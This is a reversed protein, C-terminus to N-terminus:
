RVHSFPKGNLHPSTVHIFSLANPDVVNGTDGPDAHGRGRLGEVISSPHRIRGAAADLLGSGSEAKSGIGHGACEGLLAAEGNAQEGVVGIAAEGQGDHSAYVFCQNILTDRHEETANLIIRREALNM